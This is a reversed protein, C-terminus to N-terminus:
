PLSSYSSLTLMDASFSQVESRNDDRRSIQKRETKRVFPIRVAFALGLTSSEVPCKKASRGLKFFRCLYGVESWRDVKQPEAQSVQSAYVADLLCGKYASPDETSALVNSFHQRPLTSKFEGCFDGEV